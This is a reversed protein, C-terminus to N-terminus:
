ENQIHIEYVRNTEVEKKRPGRVRHVTRDYGKKRKGGRKPEVKSPGVYGEICFKTKPGERRM